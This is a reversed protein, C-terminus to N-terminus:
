RHYTFYPEQQSSPVMESSETHEFSNSTKPVSKIGSCLSETLEISHQLEGKAQPSFSHQPSPSPNSRIYDRLFLVIYIFWFNSPICVLRKSSHQDDINQGSYFGSSKAMLAKVQRTCRKRKRGREKRFDEKASSRAM